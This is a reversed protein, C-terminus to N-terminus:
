NEGAPVAFTGPKALIEVQREPERPTFAAGILRAVAWDLLPFGAALTAVMSGSPRPNVELVVPRGDPGSMLDIDHLADLGLVRAVDRCYASVGPDALLTNGTFPIGAPNTRQRVAVVHRGGGLALIDADYAPVGLCPMVLTPGELLPAIAEATPDFGELRRERAGGGLWAPPADQGCLVYLGRGGRGAVPKFIVTRRPFGYSLVAERVAAADVALTYEPVPVGAAQLSQYTRFKDAILDLVPKPSVIVRAGAAELAPLAASAAFAEEDSGPLLVDVKERRIIECLAPVYGPDRGLPAPFVGDLLRQAAVPPRADVGLVRFDFMASRALEAVLAPVTAGGACTVLFTIEPKNM